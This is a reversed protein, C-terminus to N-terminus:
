GLGALIAFQATINGRSSQQAIGLSLRFPEVLTPEVSSMRLDTVLCLRRTKSDLARQSLARAGRMQQTQTCGELLLRLRLPMKEAWDDIINTRTTLEGAAQRGLREASQSHIDVGVLAGVFSWFEGPRAAELLLM